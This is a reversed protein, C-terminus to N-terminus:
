LSSWISDFDDDQTKNREEDAPNRSREEVMEERGAAPVLMKFQFQSFSATSTVQKILQGKSVLGSENINVKYGVHFAINPTILTAPQGIARLEPLMLTRMFETVGGKKHIVQTGCAEAKPAILEVGMRVGEDKFQKVWRIVGISWHSKDKELIGVIEGTKVQHPVDQHWSLCFGGPSTNVVECSYQPYKDKEALLRQEAHKEIEGGVSDKELKLKSTDVNLGWVDNSEYIDRRRGGPGHQLFPNNLEPDLVSGSVMRNFDAKGSVFYHTASLGICLSLSGHEEIRTFAREALVGWAQILIRTLDAPFRDPVFFSAVPHPQGQPLQLLVRLHDSIVSADFYRINHPLTTRRMLSQYIPPYDTTVDIVFLGSASKADTVSAFRAWYRAAYYVQQIQTQRLQNPKATSLLLARMYQDYISSEWNDEEPDVTPLELMGFRQAILYLLHMERWFNAPAPYYLQFSRLLVQSQESIARHIAKQCLKKAEKDMNKVRPLSQMTVAKYGTALHNQLAQALAAIKAEKPPLVVAKNLFHKELSECIYHIPGRMIEMLQFRTESDTKLRNLEQIASYLRKASEGVNMKPLGEVWAQVKKPQPACFSLVELDHPPLKLSLHEATNSM